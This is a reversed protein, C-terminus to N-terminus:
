AKRAVIRGNGWEGHRMEEIANTFDARALRVWEAGLLWTFEQSHELLQQELEKWGIEIDRETIDAVHEITYGLSEIFRAVDGLRWRYDLSQPENNGTEFTIAM